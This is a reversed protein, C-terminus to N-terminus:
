ELESSLMADTGHDDIEVTRAHTQRDFDVPARMRTLCGFLAIRLAVLSEASESNGDKAKPVLRDDHANSTNDVDNFLDARKKSSQRPGEGGQM